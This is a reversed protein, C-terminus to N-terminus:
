KKPISQSSFTGGPNGNPFKIQAEPLRVYTPAASGLLDSPPLDLALRAVAGASPTRRAEAVITGLTSLQEEYKCAGDGCLFVPAGQHEAVLAALDDPAIVQEPGVSRSKGAEQRHFGVFIEKRRADLVSVILADEPVHERCDLALAALSSVLTLPVGSAFCLGKVTAMGIRLGTFSGPGAGIAITHLQPLTLKTERLCEDILVLLAESHSNVGSEKELAVEGDILIAVSATLTSSEVALIASM